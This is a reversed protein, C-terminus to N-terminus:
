IMDATLLSLYDKKGNIWIELLQTYPIRIVSSDKAIFRRNLQNVSILFNHWNAPTLATSLICNKVGGFPWDKGFIVQFGSCFPFFKKISDSYFLKFEYENNDKGEEKTEFITYTKTYSELSLTNFIILLNFNSVNVKKNGIKANQYPLINTLPIIVIRKNRLGEEDLSFYPEVKFKRIKSILFGGFESSLNWGEYEDKRTFKTFSQIDTIEINDLVDIIHYRNSRALVRNNSKLLCEISISFNGLIFFRKDTKSAKDKMTYNRVTITNHQYHFLNNGKFIPMNSKVLLRKDKQLITKLYSVAYNLVSDVAMDVKIKELYGISVMKNMSSIYFLSIAISFLMIMIFLAFLKIIGSKKSKVM